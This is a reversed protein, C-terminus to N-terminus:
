EEDGKIIAEKTAVIYGHLKGQDQLIKLEIDNVVYRKCGSYKKGKGKFDEPLTPGPKETLVDEKKVEQAEEGNKIEKKEKAM